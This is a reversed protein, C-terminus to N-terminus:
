VFLIGAFSREAIIWLVFIDLWYTIIIFCVHYKIKPSSEKKVKEAILMLTIFSDQCLFSYFFLVFFFASLLSAVINEIKQSVQMQM